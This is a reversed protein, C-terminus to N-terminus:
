IIYQFIVFRNSGVLKVNSSSSPTVNANKTPPSNSSEKTTSTQANSDTNHTSYGTAISLGTRLNFEQATAGQLSM